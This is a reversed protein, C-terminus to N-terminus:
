RRQSWVIILGIFIFVVLVTILINSISPTSNIDGNEDWTLEYNQSDTIKQLSAFYASAEDPMINDKRIEYDYNIIISNGNVESTINFLLADSQVNENTQKLNWGDGPLNIELEERYHLPFHLGVPMVRQTEKPKGLFDSIVFCSFSVSRVGNSITWFSDISYYEITSFIGTSDNDNYSLSDSKLGPFYNKYFDQYDKQIKYNSNFNFNSREYDAKAGYNTTIVKLYGAGYYSPVTFIERVFVENKGQLKIKTLSTTTDTLVLGYQYDPFSITSLPGRQFSITPDLWYIKNNITVSVTCHDFATASPLWNIIAKKNTTNILVPFAEIGMAELMVCLLYSKEKCDGFRQNFVQNPNAPKHSNAGMEIGMYRIEDQVFRLAASTKTEKTSYKKDIEKIKTQLSSNLSIAKPFLALAWKNVDYWSSFESIMVFGYPNYWAPLKDQAHLAKSNTRHWEYVKNKGDSHVSPKITDQNNKINLVRNQPAIIKYHLNYVPISFQMDFFTQFKNQFVPNFGKLTYSYQIIDDKRVDDLILTAQLQGNYIYEDLEPEVHVIEIKQLNLKSISDGNRIIAISHITLQQFTPDYYINVTSNDQVGSESLIKLSRNSYVAQENLNIQKEYNMDVYGGEAEKNLSTVNYDIENVTIWGPINGTAPKNRQGILSAFPLLVFLIITSIRRM